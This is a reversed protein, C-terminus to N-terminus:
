KSYQLPIFSGWSEWHQSWVCLVSRLAQGWDSTKTVQLYTKPKIPKSLSPQHPRNWTSTIGTQTKVVKINWLVKLVVLCVKRILCYYLFTPDAFLEQFKQADTILLFLSLPFVINLLFLQIYIIRWVHLQLDISCIKGCLITTGTLLLACNNWDYVTVSLIDIWRFQVKSKYQGTYCKTSSPPFPLAPIPISPCPLLSSKYLYPSLHRQNSANINQGYNHVYILVTINVTYSGGQSIM